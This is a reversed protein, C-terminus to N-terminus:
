LLIISFTGYSGLLSFCVISHVGYSLAHCINIKQDPLLDLVNLVALILPQWQVVVQALGM